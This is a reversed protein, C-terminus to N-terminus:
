GSQHLRTAAIGHIPVTTPTNALLSPHQPLVRAQVLALTRGVDSSIASSTVRPVCRQM